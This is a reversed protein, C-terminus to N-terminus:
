LLMLVAHLDSGKRPRDHGRASQSCQLGQSIILAHLRSDLHGCLCEGLLCQERLKNVTYVKCQSEQLTGPGAQHQISLKNSSVMQLMSSLLHWM